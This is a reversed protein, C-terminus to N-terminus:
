DGFVILQAMNALTAAGYQRTDRRRVNVRRAISDHHDAGILVTHKCAQTNRHIRRPQRVVSTIAIVFGAARVLALEIVDNSL